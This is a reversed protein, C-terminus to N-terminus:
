PTSAPVPRTALHEILLFREPDTLSAGWGIMKEVTRAWGAATLRQQDILRADHCTLCRKAVLEAGPGESSVPGRARTPDGFHTSLYDLLPDRELGDIAAGWGVMKDLERGWADRSLRQEVIMERGHCALCKERVIQSGEGAPVDPLVAAPDQRTSEILPAAHLGFSIM